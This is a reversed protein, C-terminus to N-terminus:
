RAAPFETLDIPAVLLRRRGAHQFLEVSWDRWREGSERPFIEAELVFVGRRAVLADLADVLPGPQEARMTQLVRLAREREIGALPWCEYLRPPDDLVRASRGSLFTRRLEDLPEGADRPAVNTTAHAPGPDYPLNESLNRLRVVTYSVLAVALIAPLWPLSRRRAPGEGAPQQAVESM